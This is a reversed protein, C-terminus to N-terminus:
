IDNRKVAMVEADNLHYNCLYLNIWYGRVQDLEIREGKLFPSTFYLKSVTLAQLVYTLGGEIFGKRVTFYLKIVAM